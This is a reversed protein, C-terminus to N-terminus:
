TGAAFVRPVRGNRHKACAQELAQDILSDIQGVSRRLAEAVESVILYRAKELLRKERFSLPKITNLYVLTKLVYAIEFIDGTRMRETFEKYRGKWDMPPDEFDDALVQLLRHCGDPTIPPRLGVDRATATPVMVISNTAILRLQYFECTQGTCVERVCIAEIVGLGHNPYVVKQGVKFDM